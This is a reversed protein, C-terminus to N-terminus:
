SFTVLIAGIVAGVAGAVTVWLVRRDAPAAPPDPSLFLQFVTGAVIVAGGIAFLMPAVAVEGPGLRSIGFWGLVCGYTVMSLHYVIAEDM